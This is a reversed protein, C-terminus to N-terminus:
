APRVRQPIPQTVRYGNRRALAVMGATGHGGPFAVVLHPKALELMLRNREMGAARGRGVWNAPVVIRQVGRNEAWADAHGDAGPAGGTIVLDIRKEKHIADLTVWVHGARDYDRGGCVLVINQFREMSRGRELAARALMMRRARATHSEFAAM